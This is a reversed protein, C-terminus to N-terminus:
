GKLRCEIFYRKELRVQMQAWVAETAGILDEKTPPSDAAEGAHSTPDAPSDDVSPIFTEKEATAVLDATAETSSDAEPSPPTVPPPPGELDRAFHEWNNGGTTVYLLANYLGPNINLGEQM